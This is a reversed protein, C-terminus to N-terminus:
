AKTAKSSTKKAATKTTAKKTTAKKTTTTKAAAKKTAPKKAAAKKTTTAKKATTKKTAAKKTTAKKATTKKTTRRTTKRKTTTKKTTAKAAPKAPEIPPNQFHDVITQWNLTMIALMEEHFTTLDDESSGLLDIHLHSVNLYTSRTVLYVNLPVVDNDDGFFQNVKKADAMPLNVPSLEVTFQVAPESTVQYSSYGLRGENILDQSAALLDTAIKPLDTETIKAQAPLERVVPPNEKLAAQFQAVAIKM